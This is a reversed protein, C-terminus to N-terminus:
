WNRVLLKKEIKERVPVCIYQCASSLLLVRTHWLWPATTITVHGRSVTHPATVIMYMVINRAIHLIAVTNGSYQIPLNELWYNVTMTTLIM